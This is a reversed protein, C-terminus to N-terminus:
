TSGCRAAMRKAVVLQVAFLLKGLAILAVATARYFRAHNHPGVFPVTALVLQPTALQTAPQGQVDYVV